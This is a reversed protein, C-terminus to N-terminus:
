EATDVPGEDATDGGAKDVDEEAETLEVCAGRLGDGDCRLAGDVRRTCVEDLGDEADDEGARWGAWGVRLARLEGEEGCPGLAARVAVVHVRWEGPAACCDNGTDGREPPADDVARRPLTTAPLFCGSALSLLHLRNNSVSNLIHTWQKYLRGVDVGCKKWGQRDCQIRIIRYYSACYTCVLRVRTRM